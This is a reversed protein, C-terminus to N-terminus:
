KVKRELMRLGGEVGVEGKMMALPSPPLLIIRDVSLLFYLFIRSHQIDVNIKFLHYM